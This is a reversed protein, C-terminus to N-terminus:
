LDLKMRWMGKLEEKFYPVDLRSKDHFEFGLKKYFEIEDTNTDIVGLWIYKKNLDKTLGIAIKMLGKGIGKGQHIPRSYIKEVEMGNEKASGPLNSGLNLKMFGTPEGEIFAVYYQIDPNALDARIGERSYVKNLYWLLGGELWHHAFNESYAQRCITLLLDLDTSRAKHIKM